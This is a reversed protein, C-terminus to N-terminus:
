GRPCLAGNVVDMNIAYSDYSHMLEYIEVHAIAKLLEVCLNAVAIDGIGLSGM